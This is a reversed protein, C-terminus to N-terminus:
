VENRFLWSNSCFSHIFSEIVNLCKGGGVLLKLKLGNIYKKGYKVFIKIIM